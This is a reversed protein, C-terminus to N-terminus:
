MRVTEVKKGCLNVLLVPVTCVEAMAPRDHSDATPRHHLSTMTAIAIGALAHRASCRRAICDTSVVKRIEWYHCIRFFDRYGCLSGSRWWFKFTRESAWQWGERFIEHLDTLFNKRLTAFLCVSLCVVVFVYGGKHFYFCDKNGLIRVDETTWKRM